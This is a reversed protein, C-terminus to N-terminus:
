QTVLKTLDGQCRWACKRPSLNYNSFICLPRPTWFLFGAICFCKGKPDRAYNVLWLTVFHIVSRDQKWAGSTVGVYVGTTSKVFDITCHTTRARVIGLREKNRTEQYVM